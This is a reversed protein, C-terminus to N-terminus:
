DNTKEEEKTPLRYAKTAGDNFAEFIRIFGPLMVLTSFLSLCSFLTTILGFVRLESGAVIAVVGFIVALTVCSAVIGAISRKFGSELSASITKGSKYEEEFRSAFMMATTELIAFGLGLAIISSLSLEVFEFACLVCIAMIAVFITALSQCAGIVGYKVILYVLAVVILLAVGIIGMVKALSFGFNKASPDATLNGVGLTSSMTDIKVTDSNLIIEMSGLRVRMAFEKASELTGLSLSLTSYDSTTMNETSLSTVQEGGMYIYISSAGSTLLDEYAQEGAKNFNIIVFNNGGNNALEVSKIHKSGIIYIGEEDTSSRLEFSGSGITNLLSISDNLNAELSPYGIEIRIKKGDVAFVTAGSYGEDALVDKITAISRNIQNSTYDQEGDNKLDYEAYVGGGLDNSVNITGLLSTFSFSHFNMPIFTFVAGIVLIVAILGILIKATKKKIPKM